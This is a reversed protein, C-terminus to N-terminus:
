LEAILGNVQDLSNYFKKYKSLELTSVSQEFRLKLERREEATMGSFLEKFFDLLFVLKLASDRYYVVGKMTDNEALAECLKEFKELLAKLVPNMKKM